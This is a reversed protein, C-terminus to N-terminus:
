VIGGGGVGTVRKDAIEAAAIREKADRDGRAKELMAALKDVEINRDEALGMMATQHGLMAVERRSASEMEAVDLKMNIEALRLEGESPGTKGNQAVAWAQKEEASRIFTDSDLLLSRFFTRKVEEIDIDEDDAFNAMLWMLNQSQLERVLLVSSGRARTEYDGRIHDKTTHQMNWDYFRRILPVALDDDWNRVIRRFLINGASMMMAMGGVTKTQGEHYEGQQIQPLGAVDDIQARAMAIINALQGQNMDFQIPFVPTYRAGGNNVEDDFIWVQWPRIQNTGDETKAKSSRAIMPGAAVGANDMMARWAASLIRQENRIIWPIGYGWLSAEDRELCFMSFLSEGSDLPHPDVQLVEGDCFLVVINIEDLPDAEDAMAILFDDGLYEGLARIDESELAGVYRWVSFRPETRTDTKEGIARLEALHWPADGTPGRQILRRLADKNIGPLKALARMSRKTELSRVLFGEAEEMTTADPDPFFSWPDIRRASPRPDGGFELRFVQKPKGNEDLVPKGAEDLMVEPVWGRRLRTNVTPGEIIGAGLRCADDIVDRAAASFRSEALQDAIEREMGECRRLAEKQQRKLANFAAEVQSYDADAAPAGGDQGEAAEVAAKKEAMEDALRETEIEMEPVPTPSIDWCKEDTPFLMDVLKAAMANTKVRTVNVVVDSRIRGATRLKNLKIELDRDHLGHFRRLDNLWREEVPQKRGVWIRAKQDLASLVSSFRAERVAQAQEETPANDDEEPLPVPKLM